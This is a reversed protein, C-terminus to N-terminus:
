LFYGTEKKKEELEDQLKKTMEFRLKASLRLFTEKVKPPAKLKPLSRLVDFVDTPM